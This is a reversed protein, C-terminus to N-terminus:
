EKRGIKKDKELAQGTMHLAIKLADQTDSYASAKPIYASVKLEEAGQMSKVDPSATFMIVPIDKNMKRIEKLTAIGDMEPMLYDLVIIDIKEGRLTNVAEKGSSVPIVKYDWSLIKAEMFNLLFNDDDVLLVTKKDM